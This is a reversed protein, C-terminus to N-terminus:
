AQTMANKATLKRQQPADDTDAMQEVRRVVRSYSPPFWPSVSFIKVDGRGGRRRQTLLKKFRPPGRLVASIKNETDRHRQPSEKRGPAPLM